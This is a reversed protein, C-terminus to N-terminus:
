QFSQRIQSQSSHNGQNQNLLAWNFADKVENSITYTTNQSLHIFLAILSLSQRYGNKKRWPLNYM